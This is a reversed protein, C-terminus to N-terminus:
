TERIVRAIVAGTNIETEADGISGFRDTRGRRGPKEYRRETV